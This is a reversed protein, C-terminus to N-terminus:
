NYIKTRCIIRIPLYSIVHSLIFIKYDSDQTNWCIMQIRSNHPKLFLFNNDYMKNEIITEFKSAHWEPALSISNSKLYLSHSNIKYPMFTNRQRMKSM